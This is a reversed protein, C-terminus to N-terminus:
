IKRHSQRYKGPTEGELKSFFRIFNQANTYNLKIAIDNVTMKTELLLRKAEQLRYEAVYDSFTTNKEMKIVKWLYTPHYGLTDACETLTLDGSHEEVLRQIEAMIESSKSTRYNELGDVIPVIVKYKLCSRIKDMDYLMTFKQFLASVGDTFVRETQLGADTAVLILAVIMRQLYLASEGQPVKKELLFDIFNDALLFAEETNGGDVAEKIQKELLKDYTYTQHNEQRKIDAHFMVGEHDWVGEAAMIENNKVSEISERYAERFGSFHRCLSSVGMSVMMQYQETVFRKLNEYFHLVKEDLSEEEGGFVVIIAKANCVPAMVLQLRIEEPMHEMVSLRLADQRAEDYVEKYELSKFIIAGLLYNAYVPMSLQELYATIQEGSIDGNILHLLFLETLQEKQESMLREMNVNADVLIDIKNAIYELENKSRVEAETGFGVHNALSSVPEYLRRTILVVAFVAVLGLLLLCGTISLISMAENQVTNWNYSVVYTWDLQKSSAEAIIYTKRDALRVRNKGELSGTTQFDLLQEAIKRDTAYILEGNGDFVMVDGNALNEQMLGFLKEMNVKIIMMAHTKASSVPLKYVLLLGDMQIWERSKFKAEEAPAWNYNWFSREIFEMKYSYLGEVAEKNKVLLYPYMGMNSLVWRNEFNVFSYGSVYDSVMSEGSLASIGGRIYSYYSYDLDAELLWAIEEDLVEATYYKKMNGLATDVRSVTQEVVAEMSTYIRLASEKLYNYYSYGGLVILPIFTLFILYFFIRYKYQFKRVKTIRDKMKNGMAEECRGFLM